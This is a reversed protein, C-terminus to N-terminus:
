LALSTMGKTWSTLLPDVGSTGNFSFIRMTRSRKEDALRHPFDDRLDSIQPCPNTLRSPPDNM